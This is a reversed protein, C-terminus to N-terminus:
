GHRIMRKFIQLSSSFFSIMSIDEMNCDSMLDKFLVVM